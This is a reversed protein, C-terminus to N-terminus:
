HPTASGSARKSLEFYIILSGASATPRLGLARVLRTGPKFSSRGESEGRQKWVPWVRLVRKAGSRPGSTVLTM